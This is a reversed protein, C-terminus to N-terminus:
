PRAEAPPADNRAARYALVGEGIARALADQHRHSTLRDAEGPHTLFGIEVLVAPMNVGMLVVFPAQKVGRSPGPLDALNHQVEAAILRSGRLHDTVILDGLIGGVIDASDPVAGPQDFVANETLAVRRADEDSADVSLFYTESGAAEADPASNAHISLFVDGRARNAIETRLALSVFEDAERTYVVRLGPRELYAGLRRAVGLVVDKEVDGHPGRAGFDAGGHGPDIVVTRVLAPGDAMEPIVDPDPIVHPRQPDDARVPSPLLAAAFV